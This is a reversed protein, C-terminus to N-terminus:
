DGLAEFDVCMPHGDSGYILKDRPYDPDQLDFANAMAIISCSEQGQDHKCRDCWKEEFMVGETGNSPRYPQGAKKPYCVPM